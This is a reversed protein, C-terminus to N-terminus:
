LFSRSNSRSTSTLPFFSSEGLMVTKPRPSTSLTGTCNVIFTLKPYDLLPLYSALKGTLTVV